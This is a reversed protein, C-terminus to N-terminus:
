RKKMEQLKSIGDIIARNLAVEEDTATEFSKSRLELEDAFQDKKIEREIERIEQFYVPLFRNGYSQPLKSNTLLKSGMMDLCKEYYPLFKQRQKINRWESRCYGEPIYFQSLHVVKEDKWTDKIWKLLREGLEILEEDSEYIPTRAM